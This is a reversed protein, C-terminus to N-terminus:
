YEEGNEVNFLDLIEPCVEHKLKNKWWHQEWDRPIKGCVEPIPLDEDECEFSLGNLGLVAKYM